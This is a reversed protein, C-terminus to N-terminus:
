YRSGLSGGGEGGLVIMIFSRTHCRACDNAEFRIMVALYVTIVKMGLNRKSCNM